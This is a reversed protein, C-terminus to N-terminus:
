KPATKVRPISANQPKAKREAAGNKDGDGVGPGFALAVARDSSDCAPCLSPIKTNPNRMKIKIATGIM